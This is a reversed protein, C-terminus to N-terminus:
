SKKGRAMQIKSQAKLSMMYLTIIHNVWELFPRSQDWTHWKKFIRFRIIQCVDDFDMDTRNSYLEWRQKSEALAKEIEEERDEYRDAM